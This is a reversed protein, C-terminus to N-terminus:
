PEKLVSLLFQVSNVSEPNQMGAHVLECRVGKELLREKLKVGFNASHTPDKQNEGLAPGLRYWLHVPPDGPTVLEYPSYERIWPLIKERNALFAHFSAFGFAHGGYGSNPIWEKMQAPDLSTQAGGVAVACVRTSERAIPDDSAPDAFDDHFALWLGTCAGASFGAAAIRKKDIHWESAKSRVLQLARAADRMPGKVPPEEKDAEAEDIFRYSISVVSVGAALMPKLIASVHTRDGGRWGGGHIYFVLPAPKQMSAGPAKWFDLVQKPHRGYAVNSETASPLPPAPRKERKQETNESGASEVGVAPVSSKQEAAPLTAPAILLLASVAAGARTGGFVNGQLLRSFGFPLRRPSEAYLSRVAKRVASRVSPPSVPSFTTQPLRM